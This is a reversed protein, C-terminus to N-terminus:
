QKCNARWLGYAHIILDRLHMLMASFKKKRKHLLIYLEKELWEGSVYVYFWITTGVGANRLWLNNGRPFWLVGEISIVQGWSRIQTCMVHIYIYSCNTYPYIKLSSIDDYFILFSNVLLLIKDNFILFSNVQGYIYIYFLNCFFNIYLIVNWSKTHFLLNM